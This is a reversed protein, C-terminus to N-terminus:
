SSFYHMLEQTSLYALLPKGLPCQLPMECAFLQNLLSQAEEISLRRSSPLSSRCAAIALRKEKEKEVYNTGQWDRLDQLITLLCGKIEEKKIFDPIADVMFTTDGFEQLNFGMRNFAPLHEKLVHAELHPFELTLPILLPQVYRTSHDAELQKLLREYHIRAYAARQDVLYLGELGKYAPYHIQDVSAAELLIFGPITGLSRPTPKSCAPQTLPLSPLETGQEAVSWPRMMVDSSSNFAPYAWAPRNFEQERPSPEIPFPDEQSLPLQDYAPIFSAAKDTFGQERLVAQIAQTIYDKLEIEYRLRVEKKQPHVNVDVLATPMTLHLVFVPHRNTALVTGYGERVAYSILPSQVARQNIFLYQGTRNPRTYAPFGIFGELRYPEQHFSLPYTSAFFDGGLINEVRQGLQDKFNADSIPPTKLISREDSILEFQIAPYSLALLSMTKLIEQADSAPSKQFKKRVPVNFFLSKVEITTGPSRVAPSCSLIEGGEVIVITGTQNKAEEKQPCTLLTFKSIAAISPIAEGRFVMTLLHQIDDAERIKSTAHRELCLIADDSSMGCGNDSIRILQRGGNKIEVCIEKAGADLANEVLEKVVSAPNEVVEGAAIKNITSESLVRIKSSM